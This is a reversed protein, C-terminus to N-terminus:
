KKNFQDRYLKRLYELDEEWEILAKEFGPQKFNTYKSIFSKIVNATKLYRKKTKPDGWERVYMPSQVFPLQENIVFQLIFHRRKKSEGEQGVKYGLFGLMGVTPRKKSYSNSSSRKKWEVKIADLIMEAEYKEPKNQTIVDCCNQFIQGLKNEDFKPLNSIIKSM